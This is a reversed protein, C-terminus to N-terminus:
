LNYEYNPFLVYQQDSRENSKSVVYRDIEFNINKIDFDNNQIASLVTASTGPKCYALPVATIYGLQTVSQGQPTRMWLPLMSGKTNGTAKVQDRMNTINSIYKTNEESASTKIFTSDVKIVNNIPRNRYPDTPANNQVKGVVVPLGGRLEVILEGNEADFVLNGSRAVIQLDDGIAQTILQNGAQNFLQYFAGGINLRTTDDLVEIDTQDITIRKTDKPQFSKSVQGNTSDQQDVIEAYIVEYITDTTGEFKAEAVKIDGFNFRRRKHNVAVASVYKEVNQTEIGAYVLMHLDKQIGFQADSPRYINEPNFIDPDSIFDKFLTRQHQVLFPKVYLDSYEKPDSVDITINFQKNESTFGFRDRSTVTFDYKRDISTSGADLTFDGGDIFTVSQGDLAGNIEGNISLSLGPPLSGDILVYKLNADTVTSNATISYNSVEDPTISGISSDSQWTITSDVEGLINVSFTKTSEVAKDTSGTLFLKFYTDGQFAGISINQQNTFNRELPKSLILKDIATANINQLAPEGEDLVTQIDQIVYQESSSFILTKGVYKQKDIRNYVFIENNARVIPTPNSSYTDPNYVTNTYALLDNGELARSLTLVDYFDNTGDVALVVYTKNNVTISQNILSNLDDIGDELGLSLKAIKLQDSGQIQDEFPNITVGVLENENGYRLASVTFKYNKSVAPQYPIRGAVEGTITDLVTGPPLQTQTGDDNQNELVYRLLGQTANPDFIELFLTVYNNARRYGLDSPTLWQPKRLYTGDSTFTGTGVQMITNDARLFDEGIVFIEFPRIVTNIGDTVAVSFQYNRNLKKPQRSTDNISLDYYFSSAARVGQEGFDFLFRDYDNSDYTGTRSEIDLALIPDIVGTILGTKSLSLGPPLQGVEDPIYYELTDGASVDIDTATLQYEVRASDLVFLQNNAGIPLKGKPTAWLPSDPGELNLFFTRDEISENLNARLVFKFQTSRVVELPTGVINTDSITVGLPLNGSILKIEDVSNVPLSIDLTSKEEFTGLNYGTTVTWLSSM